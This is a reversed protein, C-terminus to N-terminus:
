GTAESVLKRLYPPTARMVHTEDALGIEADGQAPFPHAKAMDSEIAQLMPRVDDPTCQLHTWFADTKYEMPDVALAWFELVLPIEHPQRALGHVIAPIDVMGKGLECWVFGAGGEIPVTYGDKIHTSYTRQAFERLYDMPDDAFILPNGTDFSLGICPSDAAHLIRAIEEFRYDIHDEFAVPIQYEEAIEALRCTADIDARITREVEDATMEKKHRARMGISWASTLCPSGLRKATEFAPRALEPDERMQRMLPGGGLVPVVGLADLEARAKRQGEVDDFAPYERGAQGQYCDFGYEAAAKVLGFGPEAKGARMHFQFSGAM